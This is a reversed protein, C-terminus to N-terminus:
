RVLHPYLGGDALIQLIFQPFPTFDLNSGGTLDKVTGAELDIELEDGQKVLRTIGRYEIIPLGHDICNRMFYANTSECLIAAVGAGKIAKCADNHDHGYGMSEGGVIFDGRRVKKPFDPDVGTLAYKGLEAETRPIGRDRLMRVTEFPLLHFDIELLQPFVWAKGRMRAIM